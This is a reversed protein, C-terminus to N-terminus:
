RGPALRVDELDKPPYASRTDGGVAGHVEGTASTVIAECTTDGDDREETGAAGVTPAGKARAGRPTESNPLSGGRLDV